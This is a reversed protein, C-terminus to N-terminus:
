LRRRRQHLQPCYLMLPAQLCPPSASSGLAPTKRASAARPREKERWPRPVPSSAPKAPPFAGGMTTTAFDAQSRKRRVAFVACAGKSRREGCSGSRQTGAPAGNPAGFLSRATCPGLSFVGRPPGARRTGPFDRGAAHTARPNQLNPVGGAEKEAPARQSRRPLTLPALLAPKVEVELTSRWPYLRPSRRNSSRSRRAGTPSQLIPPLGNSCGGCKLSSACVRLNRALRKKEQFPEM